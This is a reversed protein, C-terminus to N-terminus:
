PGRRGLWGSRRIAERAINLQEDIAAEVAGVAGGAGTARLM